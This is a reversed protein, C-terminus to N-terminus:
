KLEVDWGNIFRQLLGVDKNDVTSDANVDCAVVNVSVAWGNVCRQLLGLDRNNVVGDDNVDGPTYEIIREGGCENCDADRINDYVHDGVARTAGCENCDSDCANDYVHQAGVPCADYHWTALTLKENDFGISVAAGDTESGTYWVDTLSNCYYSACEGISIVSDPITVSVLSTCALFAWVGVSVVGDPIIVSTLLYCDAFAYGAVTKTGARIVYDDALSANARILHHDIYLVDDEWNTEDDSYATSDFVYYGISTVSDPITISALSNCSNFADDGISTVGDPITISALKDCGFFAGNEISTVSSPINVCTLSDCGSFAYWGITTVGDPITYTTRRNGVPYQIIRKKDKDLLVGEVSTYQPNDQAVTISTLANCYAFADEKVRTVSDPITFSALSSCGYFANSGITTVGDPVSLTVLLECDRFAGDAITVTGVTITYAESLSPKAAVLHHNIYLVDNEWNADDAYYATNQFAYFGISTVSDPITLVTLSDCGYFAYDGVSVVSEPITISTLTDCGYFAYEGVGTVPYGGLTSPVTVTGSVKASVDTITVKGDAVEYTYFEATEASATLSLTGTPMLSLMMALALLVSWSKRM